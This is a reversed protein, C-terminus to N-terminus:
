ASAAEDELRYRGRYEEAPYKIANKALKAFVADSLEIGLSNSLALLYCVYYM